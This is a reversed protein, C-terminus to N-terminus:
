KASDVRAQMIDIVQQLGIKELESLYNEWTADDEIDLVGTIFKVRSENMYSNLVSNVTSMAKADDETYLYPPMTNNIEPVYPMYLEISKEYLYRESERPDESREVRPVLDSIDYLINQYHCNQQEGYKLIPRIIAEEGNLGLTGEPPAVWDVNEEGYRARLSIDESYFYDLWKFAAEPNKCSSSVVALNKGKFDNYPGYAALQVGEPGTLPAICDYEKSREGEMITVTAIAGVPFAGVVATDSEILQKLQSNDQTYSTADILGEDVLGNIYKLAERFEPQAFSAIVKGEDDINYPSVPNYQIFSNILFTEPDTNWGDGGNYDNICGVLPIEDAQQNGNPDKEKFDILMDRFEDTTTPVERGVAELWQTNVWMKNSVKSHLFDSLTPFGYINGDPATLLDEAYSLRSLSNKFNGLQTDLYPNMPLFVNQSSYQTIMDNTICGFFIDPLDKGSALLLSIKQGIDNSPIVEWNIKINTKEEMYKTLKNDVYDTVAPNQAVMVTLEIPEDVIPLVGQESVSVTETQATGEKLESVEENKTGCGTILSLTVVGAVLLSISKKLLM